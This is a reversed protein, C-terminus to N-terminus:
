KNRHGTETCDEGNTRSRYTVVRYLYVAVIVGIIIKSVPNVYDAVVKYQDQLLYGAATLLATWILSGATSYILFQVLPMEAIGAPISILTRVAPLLRGFFVAKRGHRQFTCLAGDIDSPAVTLWRGFRCSLRKLREKGYVRGAYYWPLTGIVSGATGAVLVGIVNLEGRAATFGALPMILESPIPPFINELSMLAFIGLYGSQSMFQVIFEFM